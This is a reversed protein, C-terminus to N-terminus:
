ITEVDKSKCKPCVKKTILFSKKLFVDEKDIHGCNNCVIELSDDIIVLKGRKNLYEM